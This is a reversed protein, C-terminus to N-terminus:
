LSFSFSAGQRLPGYIKKTIACMPADKAKLKYHKRRRANGNGLLPDARRLLQWASGDRTLEAAWRGDRVPLWASSRGEHDVVAQVAFSSVSVEDGKSLRTAEDRDADWGPAVSLVIEMQAVYVQPEHSRQSPVLAVAAEDLRLNGHSQTGVSETCRPAAPMADVPETSLAFRWHLARQAADVLEVGPGLTHEQQRTARTPLQRTAAVANVLAASADPQLFYLRRPAAIGGSSSTAAARVGAISPVDLGGVEAKAFLVWGITSLLLALSSAAAAGLDHRPAISCGITRTNPYEVWPAPSAVFGHGARRLEGGPDTCAPLWHVGAIGLALVDLPFISTARKRKRKEDVSQSAPLVGASGMMCGPVVWFTASVPRPDDQLRTVEPPAPEACCDPRSCWREGRRIAAWDVVDQQTVRRQDAATVRWSLAWACFVPLMRSGSLGGEAAHSTASGAHLCRMARVSAISPLM